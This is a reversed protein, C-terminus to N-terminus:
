DCFTIAGVTVPTGDCSDSMDTFDGTNNNNDGRAVRLRLRWTTSSPSSGSVEDVYFGGLGSQSNTLCVVQPIVIYDAKGKGSCVPKQLNFAGSSDVSEKYFKYASTLKRPPSVYHVVQSDDIKATGPLYGLLLNVGDADEIGLDITIRLTSGIDVDAGDSCTFSLSVDAILALDAPLFEANQMFSLTDDCADNGSNRTAPWRSNVSYYSSAINSLTLVQNAIREMMVQKTQDIRFQILYVAVLSLLAVSVMVEILTFGTSTRKM